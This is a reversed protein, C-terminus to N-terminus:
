KASKIMSEFVGGFHPASPPNFKWEIKHHQTTKKVIKEKDLENIKERMEKEAGVFNTGNDSIVYSPTGRRATMRIFANIFSDTDLSYAMELHVARTALCTFLCLYRKMRSKGRGQKTFFPGAFDTGIREFARLPLTLRSAPLPAMKQGVPKALFKRRCEPCNEVVTRVMLRGKVIWFQSRLETLLHETGTGHGLKEHADVIVLRTVPHNKPLIVPHRTDYSLDEALRLRGDLRLLGDKDLLPSFRLLRQDKERSPFSEIQAKRLWFTQADSLETSRLICSM